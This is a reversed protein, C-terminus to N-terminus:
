LTELSILLMLHPVRPKESAPFISAFTASHLKEGSELSYDTSSHLFYANKM